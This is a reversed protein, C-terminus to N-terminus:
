GRLPSYRLNTIATKLGGVTHHGPSEVKSGQSSVTSFQGKGPICCLASLGVHNSCLTFFPRVNPLPLSNCEKRIECSCYFMSLHAGRLVSIIGHAIEVPM